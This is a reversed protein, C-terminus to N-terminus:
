GACDSLLGFLFLLLLLSMTLGRYLSQTGSRLYKGILVDFTRGGDLPMLPLTNMLGISLSIVLAILIAEPVNTAMERIIKVIGVPGVVSEMPAKFISWAVMGSFAIGLPIMLYRSFFERGLFLIVLIVVTVLQKYSWLSQLFGVDSKLVRYLIMLFGSFLLNALPGAGYIDAQQKYPLEKIMREGADTVKVFAGLLFPTFQLTAGDFIRKSSFKVKIPFPLGVSIIKIPIGYKRMYLAHGLEHLFISFIILFVAFAIAM